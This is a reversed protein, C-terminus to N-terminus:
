KIAKIESLGFLSEYGVSHGWCINKYKCELCIESHKRDRPTLSINSLDKRDLEHDSSLIKVRTQYDYDDTLKIYKNNEDYPLVCFPFDPIKLNVNNKDCYDIIPLVKKVADSYKIAVTELIHKEGYYEIDIDPYTIAIDKVGKEKLYIIIDSLIELNDKTIVINAKLYAGKWFTYINEFVKEWQVYVNTRSIKQQTERDIAEVSLILEDIKPLYKSAQSVIHLTSANTTVLITYGLKKGLMLADLFVPQIFPEGGLYTVHNYGKKKYKILKKLIDYKTVKKTWNKEMNPFEMCYTCKQNCTWGVYIELRKYNM